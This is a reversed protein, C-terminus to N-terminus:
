TKTTKYSYLGGKKNQINSVNQMTNDLKRSFSSTTHKHQTTHTRKQLKTINKEQLTWIRSPRFIEVAKNLCHRRRNERRRTSRYRLFFPNKKKTKRSIFGKNEQKHHKRRTSYPKM